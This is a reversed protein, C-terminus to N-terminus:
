PVPRGLPLTTAVHWGGEGQRLLEVSRVTGSIPLSRELARRTGAPLRQRLAVTVHPVVEGFRGGYPAVELCAAVTETLRVFPESPDPALYFVGPFHGISSLTYGFPDHRALAEALARCSGLRDAPVPYLVTVHAPMGAVAGPDFRRRCEQVAPGVGDVRM